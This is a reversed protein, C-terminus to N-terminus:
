KFGHRVKFSVNKYPRNRKSKGGTPSNIIDLMERVGAMELPDTLPVGPDVYVFIKDGGNMVHGTDMLVGKPTLIIEFQRRKDPYPGLCAPIISRTGQPIIIAVYYANDGTPNTRCRECSWSHAYNRVVSTSAFRVIPKNTIDSSSDIGHTYSRYVVAPRQTEFIKSVFIEDTLRIMKGAVSPTFGKDTTKDPTTLYVNVDSNSWGLHQEPDLEQFKKMVTAADKYGFERVAYELIDDLERKDYHKTLSAMDLIQSKIDMPEAAGRPEFWNISSFNANLPKNSTARPKPTTLKPAFAM